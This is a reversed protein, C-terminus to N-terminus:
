GSWNTNWKWRKWKTTSPNIKSCPSLKEKGKKTHFVKQRAAHMRTLIKWVKNKTNIVNQAHKKEMKHEWWIVASRVNFIRFPFYKKWWWSEKTQFMGKEPERTPYFWVESRKRRMQLFACHLNEGPKRRHFQLCTYASLAPHSRCSSGVSMYGCLPLM